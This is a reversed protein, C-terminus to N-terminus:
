TEEALQLLPTGEILALVRDIPNQWDPRVDRVFRLAARLQRRLGSFRELWPVVSEGAAALGIVLHLLDVLLVDHTIIEGEETFLTQQQHKLTLGPQLKKLLDPLRDSPQKVEYTRGRGTRGRTMLGAAKLDEATVQLGRMAKSVEDVSVERRKTALM